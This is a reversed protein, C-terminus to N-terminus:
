GRNLIRLYRVYVEDKYIMNVDGGLSMMTLKGAINNLRHSVFIEGTEKNRVYFAPFVLREIHTHADSICIKDISKSIDDIIEYKPNVNVPDVSMIEEITGRDIKSVKFDLQYYRLGEEKRILKM